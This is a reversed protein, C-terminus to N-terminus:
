KFWVKNSVQRYELTKTDFFGYEEGLIPCKGTPVFNICYYEVKDRMSYGYKEYFIKNGDVRYEEVVDGNLFHTVIIPYGIAKNLNSFFPFLYCSNEDYQAIYIIDLDNHGGVFCEIKQIKDGVKYFKNYSKCNPSIKNSEKNNYIKMEMLGRIGKIIGALNRKKTPVYTIQFNSVDSFHNSFNDFKERTKEILKQLYEKTPKDM